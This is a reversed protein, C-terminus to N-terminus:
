GAWRCGVIVPRELQYHDIVGRVDDALDGITFPRRM